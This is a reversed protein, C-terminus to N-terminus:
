ADSATGYQPRGSPRYVQITVGNHNARSTLLELAADPGTDPFLRTGQGIVVPYTLLTVRRGCRHDVAAARGASRGPVRRRLRLWGSGFERTRQQDLHALCGPAAPPRGMRPQAARWGCGRGARVVPVM